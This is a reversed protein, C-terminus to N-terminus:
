LWLKVRIYCVLNMVAIFIGSIIGVLISFIISGFVTHFFFWEIEFKIGWWTLKM